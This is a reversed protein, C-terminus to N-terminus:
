LGTIVDRSVYFIAALSGVALYIWEGGVVSARAICFRGITHRPWHGRTIVRSKYLVHKLCLSLSLCWGLRAM